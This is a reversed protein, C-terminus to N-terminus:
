FRGKSGRWLMVGGILSAYLMLSLPEPVTDIVDIDEFFSPPTTSGMLTGNLTTRQGNSYYLLNDVQNYDVGASSFVNIVLGTPVGTVPNYGRYTGSDDGDNIL